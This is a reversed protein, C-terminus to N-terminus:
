FFTYGLSLSLEWYRGVGGLQLGADFARFSRSTTGQWQWFGPGRTVAAQTSWRLRSVYQKLGVQYGLGRQHDRETQRRVYGVGLLLAPLQNHKKLSNYTTLQYASFRLAVQALQMSSYHLAAHLRFRPQQRLLDDLSALMGQWQRNRRLNTQYGARVTLPLRIYGILPAEAVVGVPMYRVGSWVAVRGRPYFTEIRSFDGARDITDPQLQVRVSDQHPWFFLGSEYGLASVRVPIPLTDAPALPLLFRGAADTSTEAEKDQRRITAGPIGAGTARDTVRGVITTQALLPRGSMLACLGLLLLQKM